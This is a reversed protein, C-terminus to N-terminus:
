LAKQPASVFGPREVLLVAMIAGALVDFAMCFAPWWEPMGANQIFRGHFIDFVGHGALAAAAWWLSTRFGAVAMSIFALAVTTEAALAATSGGMVGFLVYYTAVPIVMAPYFVRDRDFGSLRRLRM